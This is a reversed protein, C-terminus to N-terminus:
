EMKICGHQLKVLSSLTQLSAPSAGINLTEFTGGIAGGRRQKPNKAAEALDWIGTEAQLHSLIAHLAQADGLSQHWPGYPQLGYYDLLASQM